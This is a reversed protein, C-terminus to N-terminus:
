FVVQPNENRWLKYLVIDTACRYLINV